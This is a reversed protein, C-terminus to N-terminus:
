DRDVYDSDRYSCDCNRDTCDCDDGPVIVASFKRGNDPSPGIGIIPGNSSGGLGFTVKGLQLGVAGGDAYINAALLSTISLMFIVKKM